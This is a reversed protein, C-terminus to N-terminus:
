GAMPACSRETVYTSYRTGRGHRYSVVVTIHRSFPAAPPTFIRWAESYAGTTASGSALAACDTARLTEIRSSAVAAAGAQRVGESTLRTIAGASAALGLVGVTLIVMAVVVEVLSFGRNGNM